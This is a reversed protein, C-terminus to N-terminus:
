LAKEGLQLRAMHHHTLLAMGGCLSRLGWWVRGLEGLSM